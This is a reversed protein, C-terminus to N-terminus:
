LFTVFVFFSIYNGRRRKKGEEGRKKLREGEKGGGSREESGL